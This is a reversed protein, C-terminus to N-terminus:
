RQDAGRFFDDLAHQFDICRGFVQDLPQALELDIRNRHQTENAGYACRVFSSELSLGM